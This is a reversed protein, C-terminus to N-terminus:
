RLVETIRPRNQLAACPTAIRNLAHDIRRQNQHEQHRGGALGRARRYRVVRTRSRFASRGLAAIVRVGMGGVTGARARLMPADRHPVEFSLCGMGNASESGAYRPTGMRGGCPNAISIRSKITHSATQLAIMIPPSYATMIASRMTSCHHTNPHTTMDCAMSRSRPRAWSTTM